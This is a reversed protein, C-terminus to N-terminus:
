PNRVDAPRALPVAAPSNMAKLVGLTLPIATALSLVDAAPQTIQVGLLGLTPSLLFILPLFFIFQRSMAVITAPIAKGITQLLMNSMIIFASLPMTVCQCRLAFAGIEIVQPDDRRFLAILNPAFIFVVIAAFVLFVLSVRVSFWFARKVRDYRGAGYNFGCVPQFGQGFGIIASGSMMMIRNVISMGAIAADSGYLGAMYNLAIIAVSALGQRALSPFGGRLMEKYIKRSPRFNKARIPLSSKKATMYLLIVFSILQSIATALAAGGVGMNLVFIFLPDLGVNLVAGIAMGVVGYVANGQFRLQNNLVFSGMQFTAGLLIYKLYEVAHPLITQTSGLLLALPRIFILGLLTIAGGAILTTFFATSAMDEAAKPKKAGLMRSMYNGSGHGFFFGLAQIIAMLSFVVGVAGTASTGIQGVFFTDAMNYFATILMGIITPVAMKCVLKEVPEETMRKFKSDEGM